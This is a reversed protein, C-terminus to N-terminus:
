EKEFRLEHILMKGLNEKMFIYVRFKGQACEYYVIAYKAGQSSAGRHHVLVQKPPNSELFGKIIIEAQSKSYVGETNMVTLEVNTNFQKAIDKANANKLAMVVEDFADAKVIITGFLLILFLGKKM